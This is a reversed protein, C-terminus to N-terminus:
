WISRKLSTSLCKLTSGAPLAGTRSLTRGDLVADAVDLAAM